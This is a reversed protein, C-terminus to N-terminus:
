KRQSYNPRSLIAICLEYPKILPHHYNYIITSLYRPYSDALGVGGSFM